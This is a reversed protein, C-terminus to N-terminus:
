SGAMSRRLSRRRRAQLLEPRIMVSSFGKAAVRELEALALEPRQLPLIAVPHLRGEGQPPSTGCGTTTPGPWSWRPRRTRSWPSTSASCRRSCSRQAVGMADMDALRAAPDSAGPNLPQFTDPDLRGITKPTMGPRWIAQRVLKSRNLEKAPRGTSSQPRPQGRRRRQHYFAPRPRTAIARPIYDDWVAPPEYVHSDVDIVVAMLLGRDAGGHPM